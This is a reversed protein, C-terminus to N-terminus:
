LMAKSYNVTTDIIPCPAVTFRASNPGCVTEPKNFSNKLSIGSETIGAESYGSNMFTAPVAM